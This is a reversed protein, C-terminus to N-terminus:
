FRRGHGQRDCHNRLEEAMLKYVRDSLQRLLIPDNLVQEALNAIRDADTQNPNTV